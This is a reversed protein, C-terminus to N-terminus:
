VCVSYYTSPLIDVGAVNQMFFCRKKALVRCRETEFRKSITFIILFLVLYVECIDRIIYHLISYLLFALFM